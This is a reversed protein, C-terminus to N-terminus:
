IKAIIAAKLESIRAEDRKYFTWQKVRKASLL